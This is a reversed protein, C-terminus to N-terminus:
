FPRNYNELTVNIQCNLTIKVTKLARKKAFLKINDSKLNVTPLTSTVNWSSLFNEDYVSCRNKYVLLHGEKFSIGRLISKLM